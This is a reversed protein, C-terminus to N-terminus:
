LTCEFLWWSQSSHGHPDSSESFPTHITEFAIGTQRRSALGRREILRSKPKFNVKHDIPVVIPVSPLNWPLGAQNNRSDYILRGIRSIRAMVVENREMPMVGGRLM